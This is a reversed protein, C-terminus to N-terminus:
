GRLPDTRCHGAAPTAASMTINSTGRSIHILSLDVTLCIGNVAISDGLKTGNLVKAASVTLKLSDGANRVSKVTGTEEIIGTFM